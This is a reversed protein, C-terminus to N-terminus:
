KENKRYKFGEKNDSVKKASMNWQWFIVFCSVFISFISDYVRPCRLMAPPSTPLRIKELIEVKKALILVNRKRRACPPAMTYVVLVICLVLLDQVSYPVVVFADNELIAVKSCLLHAPSQSLAHQTAATCSPVQSPARSMWVVGWWGWFFKRPTKSTKVYRSKEWVDPYHRFRIISM